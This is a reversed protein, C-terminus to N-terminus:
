AGSHGATAHRPTSTKLGKGSSPRRRSITRSLIAMVAPDGPNELEEGCAVYETLWMGLLALWEDDPLGPMRHRQIERFLLQLEVALGARLGQAAIRASETM